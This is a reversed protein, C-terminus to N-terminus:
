KVFASWKVWHDGKAKMGSRHPLYLSGNQLNSFESLNPVIDLSESTIHPLSIIQIWNRRVGLDTSKVVTSYKKEVNEM